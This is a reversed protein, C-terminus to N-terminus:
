YHTHGRMDEFEPDSGRQTDHAAKFMVTIHVSMSSGCVGGM